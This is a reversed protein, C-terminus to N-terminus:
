RCAVLGFPSSSGRTTTMPRAKSRRLSGDARWSGAKWAWAPRQSSSRQDSSRSAVRKPSPRSHRARVSRGFADSESRCARSWDTPRSSSGHSAQVDVMWQHLDLGIFGAGGDAQPHIAHGVALHADAVLPPDVVVPPALRHRAGVELDYRAVAQQAGDEPVLDAAGPVELPDEVSRGQEGQRARSPRGREFGGGWAPKALRLARTLGGLPGGMSTQSFRGWRRTLMPELRCHAKAEGGVIATMAWAWGWTIVM